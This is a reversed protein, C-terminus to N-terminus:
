AQGSQKGGGATGGLWKHCQSTIAPRTTIRVTTLSRPTITRRRNTTSPLTTAATVIHHTIVTTTHPHAYYYTTYPGNYRWQANANGTVTFVTVTLAAATTLTLLIRKLMQEEWFHSRCKQKHKIEELTLTMPRVASQLFDSPCHRARTNSEPIFVLLVNIQREATM